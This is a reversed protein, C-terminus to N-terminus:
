MKNTCTYMTPPRCRSYGWHIDGVSAESRYWEIPMLYCVVCVTGAYALLVSQRPWFRSTFVAMSVGIVGKCFSLFTVPKLDTRRCTGIYKMYKKGRKTYTTWKSKSLLAWDFMASLWPRVAKCLAAAAPCRSTTCISTWFPAENFIFSLRCRVGICLAAM